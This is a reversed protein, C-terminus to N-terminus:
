KNPKTVDVVNNIPKVGIAKLRNQLWEPSDEIKVDKIAVGAYKPALDFDKVHIDFKLVREYVHFDSVSPSILEKQIGEQMLGARLDRAVGLHSMADARNPTLGIEFVEDIEIDFVEAVPTGPTLDADLVMIGDHGKGLGLEDEACIM